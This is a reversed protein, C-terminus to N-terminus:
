ASFFSLSKQKWSNSPRKRRGTSREKDGQGEEAVGKGGEPWLSKRNSASPQSTPRCQMTSATHCILPLCYLFLKSCIQDFNQLAVLLDGSLLYLLTLDKTIRMVTTTQESKTKSKVNPLPSPSPETPRFFFSLAIPQDLFGRTSWPQDQQVAALAAFSSPVLSTQIRLIQSM